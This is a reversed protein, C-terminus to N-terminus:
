VVNLASFEIIVQLDNYKLLKTDDKCYWEKHTVRYILMWCIYLLFEWVIRQQRAHIVLELNIWYMTRSMDSFVGAWKLYRVPKLAELALQVTQICERFLLVSRYVLHVMWKYLTIVTIYRNYYFMEPSSLLRVTKLTQWSIFITYLIQCINHIYVTHSSLILHM